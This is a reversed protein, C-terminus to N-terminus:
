FDGEWGSTDDPPVEHDAPYIDFNSVDAPGAVTPVYPPKLTRKRLGEWNFGDFWKHKQVERVSSSGLRESPNDRCLKRVIHQANRSLYKKMPIADIGRLVQKYTKMPDPGAFPPNGTLLEYIFIGLSWLDATLDHGKNLIIEPAVYEATGCFTWTKAHGIRKAFGFDVLKAYGNNDLLLNEPKLDRYIIGRVHLYVLAELTCGVYFRATGEDFKNRDRLLAWLEGGLCAELLMYLYKDDRFTRYLRVIFDSAADSMIRKENMIHEQQVTEVIHRKKMQKLAFSRTADGRICVLEVRGFGGVGLTALLSLDGLTVNELGESDGNRANDENLDEYHKPYKGARNVLQMYISRELVLCDVGGQDSVVVNSSRYDESLLAGEGFFDGAELTNLLQENKSDVTSSRTVHVKGKAIIFFTDGYAFQRIIYTGDDYHVEELSDAILNLTEPTLSAFAPVRRLLQSYQKHKQLARQMTISHFVLRDIAWLKCATLAKVTASRTCNYLIALEGFVKGNGMTCLFKGQKTVEVKGEEMVYVSSGPDGERIIVCDAQFDVSYMCDVIEGLQDSDLNQLFDNDLIAARIIEISSQSKPHKQFTTKSLDDDLSHIPESSVGWGREKRGTSGRSTSRGDFRPLHMVSRYKDLQSTLEEIRREKEGLLGELQEIRDQREKLLRTVEMEPGTEAPSPGDM